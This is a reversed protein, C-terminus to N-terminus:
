ATKNYRYLVDIASKYQVLDQQPKLSCIFRNYDQETLIMGDHLNTAQRKLLGDNDSCVKDITAEFHSLQELVYAHM